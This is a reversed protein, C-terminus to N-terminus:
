SKNRDSSLNTRYLRELEFVMKEMSFADIIRKRAAVGFKTRKNQDALLIRLNDVLAEPSEVPSLLGEMKDRIVEKIGGADTSVVAKEMAMAELLAIPLGEFISSMMYIDLTALYPRVETQLGPMYLRNDLGLETKKALLASRLPGDGLIIFYCEPYTKLIKVATEMWIDLRKQTRFVAVTGIMPAGQPIGLEERITGAEIKAPDFHATNVGNSITCLLASLKPKFKRISDNVDNSVAVVITSLNMTVVNLWRTLPHYRELKNHETYVVPIGLLKGAIRAVVGAWPLHAHIINIKNAKAYRMVRVIRLLMMLNNAASICTVVGGQSRISEAM